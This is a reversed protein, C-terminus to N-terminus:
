RRSSVTGILRLGSGLGLFLRCSGAPGRRGLGEAGVPRIVQQTFGGAGRAGPDWENDGDTGWYRSDTEVVGEAGLGFPLQSLLFPVACDGAAGLGHM